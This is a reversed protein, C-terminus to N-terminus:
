VFAVLDYGTLVAYNLVTLVIALALERRPVRVVDAMLEAWSVTRLEVRLVEAGRLVTRARRHRSASGDLPASDRGHSGAGPGQRDRGRKPPCDPSAEHFPASLDRSM